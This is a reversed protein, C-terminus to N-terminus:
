QIRMQVNLQRLNNLYAWTNWYLCGFVNDIAQACVVM